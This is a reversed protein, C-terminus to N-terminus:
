QQANVNGLTATVEVSTDGNRIIGIKVQDGVSSEDVCQVLSEMNLITKGNYSVIIDGEVIGANAASSGDM